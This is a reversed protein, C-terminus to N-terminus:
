KVAAVTWARLDRGVNAILTDGENAFVLSGAPKGGTDFNSVVARSAAEIVQIGGKSLTEDDLDGFAIFRGNPSWALTAVMRHPPLTLQGVPKFTEPRRLTLRRDVGGSALTGDLPGFALAFFALDNDVSTIERGSAADWIRLDAEASATAVITSGPRVAVFHIETRHGQLRHRLAGSATNFVRVEGFEGGTVLMSGDASFAAARTSAAGLDLRKMTPKAGPAILTRALSGDAALSWVERGDATSGVALVRAAHPKLMVAPVADRGNWM